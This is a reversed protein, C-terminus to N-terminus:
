KKTDEVNMPSAIDFVERESGVRCLFSGKYKDKIKLRLEAYDPADAVFNGKNYAVLQGKLHDLKGQELDKKYALYNPDNDIDQGTM